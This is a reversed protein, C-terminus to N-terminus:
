PTVNIGPLIKGLGEAMTDAGIGGLAADRLIGDKDIWFHVPVATAGWAAHVKGDTDLGVPLLVNIEQFFAEVAAEDEKSDVAIIVLGTDQYRVGFGAVLPLEDRCPVCSTAMFNVWVPKGKLSALDITDGGLLPLSLAPAPEGIRFAGAAASESPEGPSASSGPVSSGSPGESPSPTASPAATAEAVPSSTPVVAAPVPALAIVGGVALGGVVLGALLGLTIATKGGM